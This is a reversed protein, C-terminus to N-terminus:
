LYLLHIFPLTRQTVDAFRHPVHKSIAFAASSGAEFVQRLNMM